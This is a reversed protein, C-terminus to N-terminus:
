SGSRHWRVVLVTSITLAGKRIREDETDGEVTGISALREVLRAV